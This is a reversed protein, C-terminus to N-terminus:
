RKIDTIVVYTWNRSFPSVPPSLPCTVKIYGSISVKTHGISDTISRAKEPNCSAYFGKNNTFTIADGSAQILAPENEIYKQNAGDCGCPLDEKCTLLAVAVLLMLGITIPKMPATKDSLGM